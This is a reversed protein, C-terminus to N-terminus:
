VSPICDRPAPLASISSYVSLSELGESGHSRSWGAANLSDVVVVTGPIISYSSIGLMELTWSGLCTRVMGTSTSAVVAAASLKEVVLDVVSCRM